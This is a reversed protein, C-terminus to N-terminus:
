TMAKERAMIHHFLNHFAQDSILLQEGFTFPGYGNFIRGAADIGVAEDFLEKETKVWVYNGMTTVGPRWGHLLLTAGMEDRTM